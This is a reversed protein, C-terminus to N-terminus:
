ALNSLFLGNPASRSGDECWLPVMGRSHCYFVGGVGGLVIFFLSLACHSTRGEFFSGISSGELEHAVTKKGCCFSQLHFVRVPPLNSSFM